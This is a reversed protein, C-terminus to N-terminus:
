RVKARTREGLSRLLSATVSGTHRELVVGRTDLFLITPLQTVEYIDALTRGSETDFDARFNLFYANFYSFVAEQTFLEEEMVKCPACWAAHFEVFVPVRKQQALELVPMLRESEMWVITAPRKVPKSANAPVNRPPDCALQTGASLLFFSFIFRRM